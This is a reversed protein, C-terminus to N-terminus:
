DERADEDLRAARAAKAAEISERSALSLVLPPGSQEIKEAPTPTTTLNRTFEPSAAM